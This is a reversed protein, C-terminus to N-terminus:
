FILIALIWLLGSGALMAAFLVMGADPAALDLRGVSLGFGVALVALGSLSVSWGM